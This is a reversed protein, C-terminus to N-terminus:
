GGKELYLEKSLKNAEQNKPNLELCRQVNEIAQATAGSRTYASALNYYLADSDPHIVIGLKLIEIAEALHKMELLIQATDYFYFPDLDYNDLGEEKLQQYTQLAAPPGKERLIRSLPMLLPPKPLQPEYGLLSDLLINTIKGVPAPVTNALVIAAGGQEPLLWLNTQFGIDGGSHDVTRHGKYNSLFWSLGVSTEPEEEGIAAYPQWLLDYSSPQLIQRNELRGRNLNAIAWRAM